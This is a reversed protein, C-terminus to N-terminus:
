PATAVAACEPPLQSVLLPKEPPGPKPHRGEDTFWWDLEKGCGDGPPVPEQAQCL